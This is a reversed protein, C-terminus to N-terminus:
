ERGGEGGDLIVSFGGHFVALIGLMRSAPISVLLVGNSGTSISGAHGAIRPNWGEGHSLM